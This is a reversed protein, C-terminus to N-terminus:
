TRRSRNQHPNNIIHDTLKDIKTELRELGDQMAVHIVKDEAEHARQRGELRIAWVVGGVVALSAGIAVEAIIAEFM